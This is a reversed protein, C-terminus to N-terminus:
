TPVYNQLSGPGLDLGPDSSTWAAHHGATPQGPGLGVGRSWLQGGPASMPDPTVTEDEHSSATPPSSPSLWTLVSSSPLPARGQRPKETEASSNAPCPLSGALLNKLSNKLHKNNEHYFLNLYLYKPTLLFTPFIVFM